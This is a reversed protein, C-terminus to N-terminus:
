VYVIYSKYMSRSYMQSTPIVDTVRQQLLLKLYYTRYSLLHEVGAYELERWINLYM